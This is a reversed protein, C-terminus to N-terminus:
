APAQFFGPQVSLGAPLDRLGLGAGGLLRLMEQRGVDVERRGQDALAGGRRGRGADGAAGRLAPGEGPLRRRVQHLRRLVGERRLRKPGDHALPLDTFIKSFRLRPGVEPTIVLQNRAYEGLGAQVAYPIVLATDNMSAVAEYGLNRIFAAMQLAVAAEHSYERGTAAGALASPYTAVLGAEM